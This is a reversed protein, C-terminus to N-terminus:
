QGVVWVGEGSPLLCSGASGGTRTRPPKFGSGLVSTPHCLAVPLARGPQAIGPPQPACSGEGPVRGWGVEAAAAGRSTRGGARRLSGAAPPFPDGRGGAGAGPRGRRGGAKGQGVQPDGRRGARSRSVERRGKGWGLARRSSGTSRRGRPGPQEPLQLQKTQPLPPPPCLVQASIRRFTGPRAPSGLTKRQQSPPGPKPAASFEESTKKPAATPPQLPPSAAGATPFATLSPASRRRGFCASAGDGQVGDRVGM